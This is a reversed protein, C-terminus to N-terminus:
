FGGKRKVKKKPRQAFPGTIPQSMTVPQSFGQSFGLPMNQSSHQRVPSSRAFSIEPAPQTAPLTEHEKRAQLQLLADTRQRKRNAKALKKERRQMGETVEKEKDLDFVYDHPDAGTRWLAGLETEKKPMFRGSATCSRILRMAPDEENVNTLTQSMGPESQSSRADISLQSSSAIEQSQSWLEHDPAFYQSEHGNPTALCFGISSLYLDCAIKREPNQLGQGAEDDDHYSPTVAGALERLKGVLDHLSAAKGINSDPRLLDSTRIRSDSHKLLEIETNWEDTATLMDAPVHFDRILELVTSAPLSGAAAADEIQEHVPDFPNPPVQNETIPFDSTQFFDLIPGLFRAIPMLDAPEQALYPAEFDTRIANQFSEENDPVIFRTAVRRGSKTTEKIDRPESEVKVFTPQRQVRSSNTSVSFLSQQVTGKDCAQYLQYFRNHGAAVGRAFVSRSKASGFLAAVPQLWACQLGPSSVMVERRWGVRLPDQKQVTLYLLDMSESGKSYLLLLFGRKGAAKPAATVSLRVSDSLPSRFHPLCSLIFWGKDPKSLDHGVISTLRLVYVARTTVAFVYNPDNPLVRTELIRDFPDTSTLSLASLFSDKNLDFVKATKANCLLLSTSHSLFSLVPLPKDLNDEYDDDDLDAMAGDSSGVWAVTHWESSASPMRAGDPAGQEINGRRIVKPKLRRHARTRLAPLEWVTWSGQDDVLALQPQKWKTGCNFAVDQHNRGGTDERSIKVACNPSIRSAMSDVHLGIDRATKLVEPVFLRTETDWQALLIRMSDYPKSDVVCKLSRVPGVAPSIEVRTSAALTAPFVFINEDASCQWEDQTMATLRIASHGTGIVEALLPVAKPASPETYDMLEGTAVLPQFSLDNGFVNPQRNVESLLRHTSEVAGLRAEPHHKGLWANQKKSVKWSDHHEGQTDLAKAEGSPGAASLRKVSLGHQSHDRSSHWVCDEAKTALELPRLSLRGAHGLYSDRPLRQDTM